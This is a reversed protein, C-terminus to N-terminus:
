REDDLIDLGRVPVFSPGGARSRELPEFAFIDIRTEVNVDGREDFDSRDVTVWVDGRAIEQATVLGAARAVEIFRAATTACRMRVADLSEHDDGDIWVAETPVEDVSFGTSACRYTLPNM